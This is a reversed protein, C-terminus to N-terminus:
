AMSVTCLLQFDRGKKVLKFPNSGEFPRDNESTQGLNCRIGDLDNIFDIDKETVYTFYLSGNSTVWVRESSPFDKIVGNTTNGSWKINGPHKPVHSPCPLEFPKGVNVDYRVLQRDWSHADHVFNSPVVAFVHSLFSTM